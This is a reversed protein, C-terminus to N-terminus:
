SKKKLTITWTDTGKTVTAKNDVTGDGYDITITGKKTSVITVVGKVIEGPVVKFLLKNSETITKTLSENQSNTVNVTGFSEITNDTLVGATGFFYTRTMNSLRHVSSNGDPNTIIVEEIVLATQSTEQAQRTITRTHGGAFLYGDVKFKDYRLKYETTGSTPRKFSAILKGSRIKGDTGTEGNGFDVTVIKVGSSDRITIIVNGTLFRQGFVAKTDPSGLLILSLKSSIEDLMGDNEVVMQDIQAEKNILDSDYKPIQLEKTCSSFLLGTFLSILLLKKNMKKLKIYM